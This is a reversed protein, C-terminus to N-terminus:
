SQIIYHLPNHPSAYDVLIKIDKPEIYADFATLGM